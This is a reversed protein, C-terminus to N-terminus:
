DNYYICHLLVITYYTPQKHDHCFGSQLNIESTIIIIVTSVMESTGYCLVHQQLSHYLTAIHFGM